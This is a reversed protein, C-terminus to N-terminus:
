PPHPYTLTCLTLYTLTPSHPLQFTALTLPRYPHTVSPSPYVPHPHTLNPYSPYPHPSLPHPHQPHTLTPSPPDPHTLSRLTLTCLSPCPYPLDPGPLDPHPPILNLLPPHPYPLIPAHCHHPYPPHPYAPHPYAPHLLTPSHLPPHFNPLNPYGASPTLPLHLRMLMLTPPPVEGSLMSEGVLCSGRLLVLDCTARGQQVVIIDGPVLRRSSVARCM